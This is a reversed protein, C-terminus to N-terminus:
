PAVPTTKDTQFMTDVEVSDSSPFITIMPVTAMLKEKKKKAMREIILFKTKKVMNEVMPMSDEPSFLAFQEPSIGLLFQKTRKPQQVPSIFIEIKEANASDEPDVAGITTVTGTTSDMVQQPPKGKLLSVYLSSDKGIPMFSAVDVPENLYFASQYAPCIYETRTCSTNYALLGLLFLGLLVNNKKYMSSNTAM